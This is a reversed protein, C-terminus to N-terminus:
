GGEEGTPVSQADVILASPTPSRRVKRRATRRLTDNLDSFIGKQKWASFTKYITNWPPFDHPLYRWQCGTRAIYRMANFRERLVEDPPLYLEATTLLARLESGLVEWEEDSIDSPYPQRHQTPQPTERHEAQYRANKTEEGSHAPPQPTRTQSYTYGMKVLHGSITSRHVSVGYHEGLHAAIQSSNIKPQEAKLQAIVTLEPERIKPPRRNNQTRPELNGTERFMKVWRGLSGKDVGFREALVRYSGENNLYAQVAQQRKEVPVAM